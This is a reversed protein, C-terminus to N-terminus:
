KIIKQVLKTIDNTLALTALNREAQKEFVSSYYPQTCSQSYLFKKNIKVQRQIALAALFYNDDLLFFNNELNSVEIDFDFTKKNTTIHKAINKSKSYFVLKDFKTNFKHQLNKMENNILKTFCMLSQNVLDFFQNASMYGMKLFRDGTKCVINVSDKYDSIMNSELVERVRQLPFIDQNINRSIYDFIDNEGYNITTKSVIKDNNFFLVHSCDSHMDVIIHKQKQNTISHFDLQCISVNIVDLELSRIIEAFDNILKSQASYFEINARYIRGTILQDITVPKKSHADILNSVQWWLTNQPDSLNKTSNWSYVADEMRKRLNDLSKFVFNDTQLEKLKFDHIMSDFTVILKEIKLDINISAKQILEHIKKKLKQPKLILEENYFNENLATDSWLLNFEGNSNDSVVLNIRELDISLAVYVEKLNYM